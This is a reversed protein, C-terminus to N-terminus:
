TLARTESRLYYLTGLSNAPLGFDDAVRRAISDVERDVLKRLTNDLELPPFLFEFSALHGALLWRNEIPFEVCAIVCDNIDSAGSANGRVSWGHQTHPRLSLDHHASRLDIATFDHSGPACAIFYLWGSGNTRPAAVRVRADGPEILHTAFWVAVWLNDVVDLWSTRYGYHQLLAALHPRRM